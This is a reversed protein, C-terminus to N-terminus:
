SPKKKRKKAAPKKKSVKVLKYIPKEKTKSPSLKELGEALREGFTKKDPSLRRQPATYNCGAILIEEEKVPDYEDEVEAKERTTVFTMAEVGSTAHINPHKAYEKNNADTDFARGNSTSATTSVSTASNIGRPMPVRGYTQPDGIFVLSECDTNGNAIADKFQQRMEDTTPPAPKMVLKRKYHGAWSDWLVYQPVGILSLNRTFFVDETSAKKTNYPPDAYEYEFWPAPLKKLGRVDILMVGTPLAAVEQIGKRRCADDRSVQQLSHDVNPNKTEGNSWEFIYVNEVPPPGCYPAAAVCPGAHNMLLNLATPFFPQFGPYPLDPHMDSDLMLVLDHGQLQAQRLVRNRGMTIPTDDVEVTSVNSIHESAKAQALTKAFWNASEPHEVAGFPFRAILLSAKM